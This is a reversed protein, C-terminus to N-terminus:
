QESKHGHGGNSNICVHNWHGMLKSVKEVEKSFKPLLYGEEKVHWEEFKLRAGITVGNVKM